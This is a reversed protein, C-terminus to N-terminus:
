TFWGDGRVALPDSARVKGALILWDAQRYDRERAALGGLNEWQGNRGVIGKKPGGIAVGDREEVAHIAHTVDPFLRHHTARRLGHRM